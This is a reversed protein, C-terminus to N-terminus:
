RDRRERAQRDPDPRGPTQRDTGRLTSRVWAALGEAAHVEGGGRAGAPIPRAGYGSPGPAALDRAAAGRGAVAPRWVDLWGEPPRRRREVEEPEFGPLAVQGAHGTCVFLAFSTGAHGIIAAGIGGTALTAWGGFVGLGLALLMMFRHRGPAALRTVLVYALTALLVSTVPPVGIWVLTGLLAGRFVAEDFVATGIANLAAGPYARGAPLRLEGYWFWAFAAVLATGLVALAIGYELAETRHGVLLLLVDHPQPHVAYIAALLTLGIVYWSVRTWAGRRGPEDYEAAGFRESEFRLLLLLMFFGSAILVRISEESM